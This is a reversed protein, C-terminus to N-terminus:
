VYKKELFLLSCALNVLLCQLSDVCVLLLPDLECIITYVCPDSFMVTEALVSSSRVLLKSCSAAM